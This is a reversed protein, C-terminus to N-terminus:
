SQGGGHSGRGMSSPGGGLHVLHPGGWCPASGGMPGTTSRTSGGGGTGRGRMKRVREKEGWHDSSLLIPTEKLAGGVGAVGEQHERLQAGRVEGISSQGRSAGASYTDGRDAGTPSSM